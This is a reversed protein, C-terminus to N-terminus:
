TRGVEMDVAVLVCYANLEMDILEKGSLSRPNWLPGTESTEVLGLLNDMTKILIQTSRRSPRVTVPDQAKLASSNEVPSAPSMEEECLLDSM